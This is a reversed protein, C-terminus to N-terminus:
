EKFSMVTEFAGVLAKVRSKREELLKSKTEEIVENSKPEDKRWVKEAKAKAEEKEAQQSEDDAKDTGTTADKAVDDAVQGGNHLENGGAVQDKDESFSEKAEEGKCQQEPIHFTPPAQDSASMDLPKLDVPDPLQEHLHDEISPSSISESEDFQMSPEDEKEKSIATASAAMARQAAGNRAKSNAAAAGGGNAAEARRKAAATNGPARTSSVIPTRGGRAAVSAPSRQTTPKPSAAAAAKDPSPRPSMKSKQFTSPAKSNSAPVVLAPPRQSTTAKESKVRGLTPKPFPQARARRVGHGASSPESSSSPRLNPSGRAARDRSPPDKKSTAM